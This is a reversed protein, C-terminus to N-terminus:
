LFRSQGRGGCRRLGSGSTGGLSSCPQAGAEQPFFSDCRRDPLIRHRTGLETAVPMVDPAGDRTCDAWSHLRVIPPLCSASRSECPLHLHSHLTLSSPVLASEQRGQHLEDLRQAPLSRLLQVDGCICQPPEAVEPPGPARGDSPRVIDRVEVQHLVGHIGDIYVLLSLYAPELGAATISNESTEQGPARQAAREKTNTLPPERPVRCSVVVFRCCGGDKLPRCM